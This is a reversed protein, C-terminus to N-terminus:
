DKGCVGRNNLFKLWKVSVHAFRYHWKWAYNTNTITFNLNGMVEVSTIYIDNNRSLKFARLAEKFMKLMQVGTFYTHELTEVFILNKGINQIYRVGKLTYVFDIDFRVTGSGVSSM